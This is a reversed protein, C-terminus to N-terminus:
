TLFKRGGEEHYASRPLKPRRKAENGDKAKKARQAASYKPLLGNESDSKLLKALREMGTIQQTWFPDAVGWAMIDTLEKVPIQALAEQAPTLWSQPSEKLGLLTALDDCLRVADVNTEVPNGTVESLIFKPNPSDKGGELVGSKTQDSVSQTPITHGNPDCQEVLARADNVNTRGWRGMAGKKGHESRRIAAVWESSLRPSHLRTGWKTEVPEFKGMVLSSVHEVRAYRALLKPDNPLTADKGLLWAQCLLLIFQGVESSDMRQVDESNMFRVVHFDFRSLETEHM